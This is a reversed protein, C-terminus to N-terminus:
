QQRDAGLIRKYATEDVTVGLRNRLANIYTTRADAQFQSELLQSLRASEEKSPAEAPKIETVVYVLRSKGDQTEAMAAGGKPLTFAQRMAATPVGAAPASRKFPKSTEVKLAQSKAVAELTEGKKIREVLAQAAASAAKRTEAELWATKADAKVDDFAKQTEPTVAAVEIWAEAGDSLELPERPVSKDGEFASAVIRAADPHALAPKGDPGNGSKDLRAIETLKLKLEDAVQKLSKGAGRLDEIQDHLRQGIDRIKRQELDERIEKAVEEFPRARGPQIETIRILVAGSRVEIPESLQNLPLSFAASAVKADGIGSRAIVGQDLRGQAGNEELAAMLFSKGSAIEKAVAVAADRSKFAIQQMRRREPINWGTQDKEWAAKVEADEIAARQKIDDRGLFLVAIQRTEPAIFQRKNGDYFEKLKAEDPDAIKPLKAQDLTVSAITRSEERYKHAIGILTASPALGGVISETIHERIEGSRRERIYGVDTFGAQRVREEFLARNFKKDPGQYQPDSRIAEVISSEALGLRMSRAQQDLTAQSIQQNLLERDLDANYNGQQLQQIKYALRANERTLRQGAQQSFANLHSDFYRRYEDETIRQAGVQALTNQSFDRNYNPIGWLAFSLILVCFLAIAFVKAAGRRLSDLM